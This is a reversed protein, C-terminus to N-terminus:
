EGVIFRVREYLEDYTMIDIGNTQQRYLEFSALMEYNIGSETKFDDLMGIVVVGRPKVFLLEEGSPVGNGDVPRVYNEQLKLSVKHITKQIQAVAGRLDKAPSYVGPRSDYAELLLGHDHRKIECLLIKSINGKTKLLADIRKGGGSVLDKGVVTQELKREDLGECAILQLGYGFIWSNNEFFNQWVDEPRKGNGLKLRESEFFAADRLLSHFHDLKKRRDHLLEIDRDTLDKGYKEAFKNLAVDKAVNDFIDKKAKDVMAFAPADFEIEDIGRIMQLLAAFNKHCSDLSVKAKILKEGIDGKAYEEIAKKTTDWICFDFRPTFKGNPKKILTVVCAKERQKSRELVFRKILGKKANKFYWFGSDPVSSIQVDELSDTGLIFDTDEFEPYTSYIRAVLERFAM